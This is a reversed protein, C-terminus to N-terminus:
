HIRLFPSLVIDNEYWCGACWQVFGPDFQQLQFDWLLALRTESWLLVSVFLLHFWGWHVTRSVVDYVFQSCEDRRLSATNM